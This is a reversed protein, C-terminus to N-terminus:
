KAVPPPTECVAYIGLWAVLDTTTSFNAVQASWGTTVEDPASLRISLFPELVEAGGGLVKEGHPCELTVVESLGEETTAHPVTVLVRRRHTTYRLRSSSKPCAGSKNKAAVCKPSKTAAFATGTAGAALLALAFLATLTAVISARRTSIQLEPM